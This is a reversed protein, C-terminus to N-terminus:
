PIWEYIYVWEMYYSVGSSMQVAIKMKQHGPDTDPKSIKVTATKPGNRFSGDYWQYGNNYYVPMSLITGNGANGTSEYTIKYDTDPYIFPPFQSWTFSITKTVKQTNDIDTRTVSQEQGTYTISNGGVTYTLGFPFTPFNERQIGGPKVGWFETTKLKWCNRPDDTAIPDCSNIFLSSLVLFVMTLLSPKM